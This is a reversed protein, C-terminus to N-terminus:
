SLRSRVARDRRRMMLALGALGFVVLFISSPEPLGGSSVDTITLTVSGTSTSALESPGFQGQVFFPNMYVGAAAPVPKFGVLFASEAPPKTPGCTTNLTVGASGFTFCETMNIPDFDARGQTFTFMNSGDSVVFSNIPFGGSDTIFGPSTFSFSFSLIPGSTQTYAFSYMEAAYAPLVFTSLAILYGFRM